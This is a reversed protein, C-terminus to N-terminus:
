YRYFRDYNAIGQLRRMKPVRFDFVEPEVTDYIINNNNIKECFVACQSFINITFIVIHVNIEVSNGNYPERLEFFHNLVTTINDNANNIQRKMSGFSPFSVIIRIKKM